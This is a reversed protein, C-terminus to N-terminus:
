EACTLFRIDTSTKRRTTRQKSLAADPSKESYFLSKCDHPGTDQLNYNAAWCPKPFKATVVGSDASNTAAVSSGAVTFYNAAVGTLTYGSKATLTITATYVKDGFTADAPDWTVTGTYQATETITTVPTAGM